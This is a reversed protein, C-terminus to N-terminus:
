PAPPQYVSWFALWPPAYALFHEWTGPTAHPDPYSDVHESVHRLVFGEGILGNLLTGLGHRYERPGAIPEGRAAEREYVWAPDTFVMAAGDMYPQKLTYGEGNWDGVGMLFPNACAFYYLGAPRLVTAIQRFVVRAEPVFNLSYPQWVLDFGAGAFPALDRMDGQVTTVPVGYHAAAARDRELQAASLDVVTVQAGLLAFAVSQQGGGAALCLVRKGRLEGLQDEPDIRTRTSAPDLDLVPRTFLANADALAQWRRVNYRAVEDM